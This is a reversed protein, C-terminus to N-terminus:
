LKNTFKVTAATPATATTTLAEPEAEDSDGLAAVSVPSRSGSRGLLLTPATCATAQALAREEEVEAVAEKLAARVLEEAALEVAMRLRAEEEARAIEVRRAEEEAREIELRRAMEEAAKRAEIIAPEALDPLGGLRRAARLLRVGPCDDAAPIRELLSTIVENHGTARYLDKEGVSTRLRLGGKMGDPTYKHNVYLDGAYGHEVAFGGLCLVSAKTRGISVDSAIPAKSVESVVGDSCTGVIGLVPITPMLSSLVRTSSPVFRDGVVLETATNCGNLIVGAIKVDFIEAINDIVNKFRRAGELESAALRTADSRLSIDNGFGWGVTAHAHYFIVLEKRGKIASKHMQIASELKAAGDGDASFDLKDFNLRGKPKNIVKYGSEDSVWGKTRTSADTDDVSINLVLANHKQRHRGQYAKHRAHDSLIQLTTSPAAAAGTKPKPKPGRHRTPMYKEMIIILTNQKNALM